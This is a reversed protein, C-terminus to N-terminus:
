KRNRRRQSGIQSRGVYSLVDDIHPTVRRAGGNYYSVSVEKTIACGTGDSTCDNIFNHWATASDDPLPDNWTGAGVDTASGFPLYSRPHGGRYHRAVEKSVVVAMAPGLNDGARTGSDFGGATGEGGMDSSLDLVTVDTIGYDSNILPLFRTLADARIAAAMTTCNGATPPGGTYALHFVTRAMDATELGFGLSVKLTGPAPPLPAM